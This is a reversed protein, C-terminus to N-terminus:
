EEDEKERKKRLYYMVSYSGLFCIFFIAGSILAGIPHQRDSIFFVLGMLVGVGLSLLIFASYPLPKRHKKETAEIDISVRLQLCILVMNSLMMVFFLPSEFAADSGSAFGTYILIALIGLTQLVYAMRVNKLTILILREDKIKKM